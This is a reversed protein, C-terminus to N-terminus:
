RVQLLFGSPRLRYRVIVIGCGGNGTEGGHDGNSVGGGGGGGTYDEGDTPADYLTAGNGGGGSGGKGNTMNAQREWAYTGGGGGGGYAVEEGTIDSIIGSGGNGGRNYSGAVLTGCSGAGGGGGVGNSASDGEEDGDHGYPAIGKGSRYSGSGSRGGGSGGHMTPIRYDFRLGGGGGPVTLGFAVSACGNSGCGDLVGGQGGAGVVIDYTGAEVYYNTLAYVGGAGGGGGPRDGQGAGGGGGGAVIFLDCLVGQPVTVTANEKFTHVVYKENNVLVIKGDVDTWQKSDVAWSPKKDPRYQVVVIGSGGEGSVGKHNAGGSGGGGMGTNAAGSGAREYFHNNNNYGANGTGTAHSSGYVEYSSGGAGYTLTRGGITVTRGVGGFGMVGTINTTITGDENQPFEWYSGGPAGAGGGGGARYMTPSSARGGPYGQGEYIAYGGHYREIDFSWGTYYGGAGGGSAGDEGSTAFGNGSGGGYAIIDFVTTNGGVKEILAGGWQNTALSGDEQLPVAAGAGIVVEYTGAAVSYNEKFVVGGGGGGGGTQVGGAGGGGVALVNLETHAPLTLTGSQRFTVLVSGDALLEKEGTYVAEEAVAATSVAVLGASALALVKGIKRKSKM